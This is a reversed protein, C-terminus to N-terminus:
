NLRFSKRNFIMPEYASFMGVGFLLAVFSMLLRKKKLKGGNSKKINSKKNDYDVIEDLTVMKNAKLNSNSEPISPLSRLNNKQEYWPKKDDGEVMGLQGYNQKYFNHYNTKIPEYISLDTNIHSHISYNENNYYEPEIQNLKKTTNISFASTQIRERNNYFNIRNVNPYQSYETEKEIHSMDYKYTSSDKRSM